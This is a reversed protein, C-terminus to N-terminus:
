YHDTTKLCKKSCFRYLKDNVENEIIHKDLINRCNACELDSNEENYGHMFAQESEDIEDSEQIDFGPLTGEPAGELADELTVKSTSKHKESKKGFIMRKLAAMEEELQVLREELEANRKLLEIIFDRVEEDTVKSLIRATRITDM